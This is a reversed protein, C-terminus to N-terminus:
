ERQQEEHELEADLVLRITEYLPIKAEHVVVDAPRREQDQLCCM